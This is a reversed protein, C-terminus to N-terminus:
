APKGYDDMNYCEFILHIRDLDVHNEVAHNRKNYVEFMEGAPLHRVQDGVHIMTGSNTILPVHIKHIYHSASLDAHPSIKGGPPLRALMVRPFRYNKYGLRKAAQEMIPLLVGKWEDWIPSDHFDFANVSVNVFRFIIHSTDDLNAFNNPKEEDQSQWQSEPATKAREILASVDATGLHNFTETKPYISVTNTMLFDYGFQDILYKEKDAVLQELEPSYRDSYISPRRSSNLVAAEKLYATIGRSIPTGTQEFLRLAEERLNEFRGIHIRHTNESEFM